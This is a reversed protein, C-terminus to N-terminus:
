HSAGNSRKEKPKTDAGESKEKKSPTGGSRQKDYDLSATREQEFLANKRHRVTVTANRINM